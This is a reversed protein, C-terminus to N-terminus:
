RGVGPLNECYAVLAEIESSKDFFADAGLQAARSRMDPTAYNTFVVVKQTRRRYRCARVVGLGNGQGLFLDVIAVDWGDPHAKLWAVAEDETSACAVVTARTADELFGVLNDRIVPSDEVLYTQLTAPPVALPQPGADPRHGHPLTSRNVRGDDANAGGALHAM